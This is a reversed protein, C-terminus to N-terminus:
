LLIEGLKGIAFTDQCPRQRYFEKSQDAIKQCTKAQMVFINSTGANLEEEIPIEESFINSDDTYNHERHLVQTFFEPEDM